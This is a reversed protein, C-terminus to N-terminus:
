NASANAGIAWALGSVMLKSIQDRKRGANAAELSSSSDNWDRHESFSPEPTNTGSRSSFTPLGYEGAEQSIKELKKWYSLINAINEAPCIKVAAKLITKQDNLIKLPPIDEWYASVYKGVQFCATWAVQSSKLTSLEPTCLSYATEFDNSALATDACMARIRIEPTDPASEPVHAVGVMFDRIIGSLKDPQTYAQGNSELLIGILEYPDMFKLEAPRAPIGPKFALVYQSLEHMSMSLAESKVVDADNAYGLSKLLEICSYAKKMGGRTINGNSASEFFKEFSSLALSKTSPVSPALNKSFEFHASDLAASLLNENIWISSVKKFLGESQLLRLNEQTEYFSIHRDDVKPLILQKVIESQSEQSGYKAVLVDSLSTHPLKVSILEGYRILKGLETVSLQSIPRVLWSSTIETINPDPLNQSSGEPLDISKLNKYIAGLIDWKGPLHSKNYCCELISSAVQPFFALPVLYDLSDITLIWKQLASYDSNCVETIYPVVLESVDRAITDASTHSLLLHVNEEFSQADILELKIRSGYYNQFRNVVQVVGVLYPVHIPTSFELQGSCADILRCRIKIWLSYISNPDLQEDALNGVDWGHTKSAENLKTILANARAEVHSLPLQSKNVVASTLSKFGTHELSELREVKQSALKYVPDVYLAPDLYEPLLFLCITLPHSSSFVTTESLFDKDFEAFCEMMTNIDGKAAEEAALMLQLSSAM